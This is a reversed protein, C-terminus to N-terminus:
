LNVENRLGHSHKNDPDTVNTLSFLNFSLILTTYNKGRLFKYHLHSPYDEKNRQSNKLITDMHAAFHDWCMELHAVENARVFWGSHFRTFGDVKLIFAHQDCLTCRLVACLIWVEREIRRIIAPSFKIWCTVLAIKPLSCLAIKPYSCLIPAM